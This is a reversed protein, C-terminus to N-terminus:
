CTRFYEDIIDKIKDYGFTFSDYEVLLKVFIEEVEIDRYQSLFMVCEDWINQFCELYLIKFCLTRARNKDNVRLNYFVEKLEVVPDEGIYNLLSDIKEESTDEALTSLAYTVYDPFKEKHIGIDIPKRYKEDLDVEEYYITERDKKINNDYFKRIDEGGNINSYPVSNGIYFIGDENYNSTRYSYIPIVTICSIPQGELYCATSKHHGDLLVGLSGRMEIALGYLKEGKRIKERYYEVRHSNYVNTGQSPLLFKPETYIPGYDKYYYAASALYNKARGNLTWFFNGEGDTPIFDIEKLVYYGDQLLSVIPEIKQFSDELSQINNMANLIDVIEDDAESRGKALTIMTSCTPCYELNWMVIPVKDLYFTEKIEGNLNKTLNMTLKGLGNKVKFLIDSKNLTDVKIVSVKKFMAFGGILKNAIINLIVRKIM